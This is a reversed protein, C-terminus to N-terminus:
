AREKKTFFRSKVFIIILFLLLTVLFSCVLGLINITKINLNFEQKIYESFIEGLKKGLTGCIFTCLAPFLVSKYSDFHIKCLGASEKCYKELQYLHMLSLLIESSLLGIFYASIGMKPIFFIVFALRISVSIVNHIFVTKIKGLGNLISAFTTAIYIFPCLWSLIIIYNGATSNNFVTEGISLGYMLFIGTCLIGLSLSFNLSFSINRSIKSKNDSTNAEATDPLLITSLSTVFTSPFMIFPFAMGTLIGFLSLADDKNLGAKQLMFPILLAEATGLLSLMIRNVSLPLATIAMAKSEKFDPLINTKGATIYTIICFITSVVEGIIIGYIAVKAGVTFDISVFLKIILIVSLIKIIQEILQSIAPIATKKLGLYYGNICLHIISFPLAITLLKLLSDCDSDGLIYMSIPNAFLNVLIILPISILLSISLGNSLVKQPETRTEAVNKSIITQIGSVAIAICLGYIPMVMQFLGLNKSGIVNSLYIRYFFGLIRSAFGAATLVLAGSVLKSKLNIM